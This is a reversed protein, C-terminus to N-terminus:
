GDGEDGLTVHPRLTEVLRDSIGEVDTLQDVSTYPGHEDRFAVIREGLVPGIGPLTDLEEVSATNINVLSDAPPPPAPERTEAATAGVQPVDIVEGDGLRGALNIAALDADPRLGGAVAVADDLRADPPLAYVGPTAVAGRLLVAITPQPGAEIRLTPAASRDLVIFVGGALVAALLMAVIFVAVFAPASLRTPEPSREM